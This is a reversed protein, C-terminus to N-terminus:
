RQSRGSGDERASAHRAAHDALWRACAAPADRLARERDGVDSADLPALRLAYSGRERRQASTEGALEASLVVVPKGRMRIQLIHAGATLHTERLDVPSVGHTLAARILRLLAGRDDLEAVWVARAQEL